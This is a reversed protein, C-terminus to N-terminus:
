DSFDPLRIAFDARTNNLAQDIGAPTGDHLIGCQWVGREDIASLVVRFPAPETDFATLEGIRVVGATGFHVFQGPRYILVFEAMATTEDREFFKIVHHDRQSIVFLSRLVNIPDRDHVNRRVSSTHPVEIKQSNVSESIQLIASHGIAM